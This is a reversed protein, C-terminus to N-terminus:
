RLKRRDLWGDILAVATLLLTKLPYSVNSLVSYMSAGHERWTMEIPLEVIRLGLLRLRVLAEIHFDVFGGRALVECTGARMAKLGSTTDYIRESAFPRTLQSFLIQGLRRNPPGTYRRGGCYRSGIVLDAGSVRLEEVLRVVDHSDHEGDSDFTVVVDYGQEVGYRLGTQLARGYGLNCPLRLQSEGLGDLLAATGDSSGDNVVVRDYDPAAARLGSLVESISKEENYAPIVILVREGTAM